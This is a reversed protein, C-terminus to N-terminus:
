DTPAANIMVPRDGGLDQWESRITLASSDGSYRIVAVTTPDGVDLSLVEASTVPQPLARALEPLHPRLEDSCDAAVTDMEGRVVADAHKHVHDRTTADDM